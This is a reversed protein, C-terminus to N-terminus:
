RIVPYQGPITTSAGKYTTVVAIWSGFGQSDTFTAADTGTSSVVQYELGVTWLTSGNTVKTTVMTFGSGATLTCANCALGVGGILIESAQARTSTAGSSHTGTTNNNAGASVDFASSSAIGSFEGIIIVTRTTFANLTCTVTFTGSAATIKGSFNSIGESGDFQTKDVAYSNGSQNDSIVPTTSGGENYCAGFIYNGVTPTSPLSCSVAVPNSGGTGATDSCFQGTVFAPAAQGVVSAFLLLLIRM